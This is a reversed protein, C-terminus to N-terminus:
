LDPEQGHAMTRVILDMGTVPGLVLHGGSEIAPPGDYPVIGVRAAVCYPHTIFYRAHGSEVPSKLPLM